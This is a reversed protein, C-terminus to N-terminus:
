ITGTIYPKLLSYGSRALQNRYNTYRGRKGYDRSYGQVTLSGGGTQDAIQGLVAEATLYLVAEAVDPPATAYGVQYTVRLNRQGKWFIPTYTSENFNAKAKLIGEGNIVQIASPTLYYLTSDVNTYSLNVLSVIPRRRLVLVSSGTGDYYEEVTEIKDFAQRTKANVFPLIFNSMRQQIWDDTITAYYSFVLQVATGTATCAMDLTIQGNTPDVVDVSQITSLPQIGTGSVYFSPEFQTTDLGTIIPSLNTTNGTVTLSSKQALGFQRLLARVDSPAPMGSQGQM